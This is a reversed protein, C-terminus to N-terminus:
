VSLSVNPSYGNTVYSASLISSTVPTEIDIGGPARVGEGIYSYVVYSAEEQCKGNAARQVCGLSPHLVNPLVAGVVGEFAAGEDEEHKGQGNRTM